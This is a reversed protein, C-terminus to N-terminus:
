KSITNYLDEYSTGNLSGYNQNTSDCSFENKGLVVCGVIGAAYTQSTIDGGNECYTINLSAGKYESMYYGIIGGVYENGNVEGTNVNRTITNKSYYNHIVYGYIGGVYENGSIKGSNVNNSYAVDVRMSMNGAIGGVKGGTATVNGTNECNLVVRLAYGVIGGVSENGSVDGENKCNEIKETYHTTEGYNSSVKDSYGGGYKSTIFSAGLIGGVNETGTVTGKNVCDYIAAEDDSSSAFIATGIGGVHKKGVIEGYNVCNRVTAARVAVGATFNGGEIRMKNVCGDVICGSIPAVFEAYPAKIEGSAFVVNQVTGDYSAAIINFRNQGLYTFNCNEFNLNSVNDAYIFSVRKDTTCTFNVNLNKITHGNGNFAKESSIFTDKDVEITKGEFDLDKRLKVNGRYPWVEETLELFQDTTYVSKGVGCVAVVIVEIFAIVAVVGIIIRIIGIVKKM